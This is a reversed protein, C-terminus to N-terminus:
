RKICGKAAQDQILKGQDLTICRFDRNGPLLHTAHTTIIVTTNQDAFSALLKIISLANEQDLNGTPEDALILRPRRAIARAIAVRQREGWSLKDILTSTKGTLGVNDLASCADKKMQMPPIGLIRMGLLVNEVATRGSILRFDQFVPGIRQRLARIEYSRLRELEKGLVALNGRSAVEMGMLLKLLSTKGSGSPGVVYVLENKAIELTLDSLAITGDPYQLYLNEAKIM